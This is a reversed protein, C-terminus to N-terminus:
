AQTVRQELSTIREETTTVRGQFTTLSHDTVQQEGELDIIHRRLDVLRDRDDHLEELDTRLSHIEHDHHSGRAVLTPIIREIPEGMPPLRRPGRSSEGVEFISPIGEVDMRQRITDPMWEWRKTDIKLKNREPMWEWRRTDIKLKNRETQDATKSAPSSSAIRKRPLGVKKWATVKTKAGM